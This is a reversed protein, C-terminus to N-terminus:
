GGGRRAAASPRQGPAVAAAGCRCRWLPLAAGWRQKSWIDLWLPRLFEATQSAQLGRLLQQAPALEAASYCYRGAMVEEWARSYGFTGCALLMAALAQKTPPCLAFAQDLQGLQLLFSRPLAPRPPAPAPRRTLWSAAPCLSPQRGAGRRRLTRLPPWPRRCRLAAGLEPGLLAPAWRACSYVHMCDGPILSECLRFWLLRLQHKSNRERSATQSLLRRLQETQLEV